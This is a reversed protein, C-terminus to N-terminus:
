LEVAKIHQNNIAGHKIPHTFIPSDKATPNIWRYKFLSLYNFKLGSYLVTPSFDV